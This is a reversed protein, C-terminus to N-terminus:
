VLEEKGFGQRIMTKVWTDERRFYLIRSIKLQFATRQKDTNAKIANVWAPVIRCNYPAYNGNPDIRDITPISRSSDSIYDQPYMSKFRNMEHLYWTEFLEPHLRWLTCIQIGELSYASEKLRYDRNNASTNRDYCRNYLGRFRQRIKPDKIYGYRKRNYKSEQHIPNQKHACYRPDRHLHSVLSTHSMCKQKGCALCITLFAQKKTRDIKLIKVNGIIDGVKYKAHSEGIDPTFCRCVSFSNIYRREHKFIKGCIICQFIFNNTDLRELLRYKNDIIDGILYQKGQYTLGKSINSLQVNTFKFDRYFVQEYKKFSDHNFTNYVLKALHKGSRKGHYDSLKIELYNGQNIPKKFQQSQLNYVRGMNSVKYLGEYGLVDRWEEGPLNEIGEIM